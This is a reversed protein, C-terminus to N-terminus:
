FRFTKWGDGGTMKWFIMMPALNKHQRGRRKPTIMKENTSNIAFPPKAPRM